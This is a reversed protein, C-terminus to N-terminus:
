AWTRELRYRHTPRPAEWGTKETTIVHGKNRLTKIRAGFRFGNEAALDNNYHWECDTLIRLLKQEQTLEGM